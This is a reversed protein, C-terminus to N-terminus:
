EKLLIMGYSNLKELFEIVDAQCQEPTVSYIKQLKAILESVRAPKELLNWIDTAIPDLSFYSGREVNLMMLEDNVAATSFGDARSVLTNLNIEPM